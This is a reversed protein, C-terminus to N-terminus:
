EQPHQKCARNVSSVGLGFHTATKSISAEHERRWRAVEAPDAKRPRGLTRGEAKARELGIRQRERINERELEAVGALMTLMLKGMPTSLDFGERVYGFM